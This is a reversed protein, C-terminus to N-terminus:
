TEAGDEETTRESKELVFIEPNLRYYSEDRGVRRNEIVEAGDPTKVCEDLTKKVERLYYWFSTELDSTIRVNGFVAKIMDKTIVWGGATAESDSGIDQDTALRRALIDMLVRKKDSLYTRKGGAEVIVGDQIDYYDGQKIIRIRPPTEKIRQNTGRLNLVQQWITSPKQPKRMVVQAGDKLLKNEERGKWTGTLIIVILGEIDAVDSLVQTADGDSLELDMILVSAKTDLVLPLIKGVKDTTAVSLDYAREFYDKVISSIEPDDEALVVNNMLLTM